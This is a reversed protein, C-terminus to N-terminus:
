RREWGNEHIVGPGVEGQPRRDEIWTRWHIKVVGECVKLVAQRQQLPASGRAIPRGRENMVYVLVKGAEEDATITQNRPILKGDIEVDLVWRNREPDFGEDNEDVSVRM